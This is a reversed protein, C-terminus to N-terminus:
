YLPLRRRVVHIVAIALLFANRALLAPSHWFGLARGITLDLPGGSLKQSVADAVREMERISWPYDRHRDIWTKPIADVGNRCGSIGGAIAAVTDTDGGCRIANIITSRYDDPTHLFAYLAVAVTPVIYGSVKRPSGIQIAFDGVSDGQELAQDLVDLVKTFPEADPNEPLYARLKTVFDQAVLPRDTSKAAERAALAVLLTGIEAKPDTHTIRTSVRVWDRLQQVDRACLGLIAGRMAPGNGASYVGSREASIGVLLRLGAVLTARGLGPPGHAMWHRLNRTLARAFYDPPDGPGPLSLATLCAHETDDSGLGYGWLFRPTEFSPVLKVIRQRSVNECVLGMMDGIAQGLLCGAILDRDSTM